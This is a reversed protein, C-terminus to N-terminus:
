DTVVDNLLKNLVDCSGRAAGMRGEVRARMLLPDDNPLFVRGFAVSVKNM